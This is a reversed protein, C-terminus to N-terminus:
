EEYRRCSEIVESVAKHTDPSIVNLALHFAVFRELVPVLVELSHEPLCDAIRERISKSETSLFALLLAAYAELIMKEAEKQGELVVQEADSPQLSGEEAAEGAGQNALFISCLLPIVGRQAEKELGEYCPLPVSAAALRSRNHGDKEVMNVLLGLIAVLFDLEQETIHVDTQSGLEINSDSFPSIDGTNNFPSMTLSFSPFHSAILSSLTELGGCAAIQQCGVANDNTLNMLVKVATLLCDGLLKSSEEVVSSCSTQSSHNSEENSSEEPCLMPQSLFGDDLNISTVRSNQKRFVKQKDSLVDWRSPEVEDEDFAFPDLSDELNKSKPDAVSNSKEGVNPKVRSDWNRVQTKGDSTRSTVSCSGLASSSLRTKIFCNNAKTRAMDESSFTSSGFQSGSLRQSTKPVDWGMGSSNRGTTSCERSLRISSDRSRDKHDGVPPLECFHSIGTSPNRSMEHSSTTSSGGCLALGSLINIFGIMLKAFSVPSRQSALSGGMGLLHSQNEKSLFTANEMIKLCRLLLVLCEVHEDGKSNRTPGSAKLWGEMSSHLSMALEFIADLGGLQRLKEKFKDGSQKKVTGIADEMSMTSFSAKEITLLAIWQPSLEPRSFGDEANSAKMEECHKLVEKVKHIIAASSSDLRRTVDETTRADKLFALLKHGIAPAKEETVNCIVPKLLKLLFLISSPSYLLYDDQGESTLLHFLTAAALNSPSDNLSLGLIADIITRAIGQARLLRRQSETGCISLLSLLSARRIRVPQGKKLGDLAFNVEDMHEMMEGFEQTEMLTATTAVARRPAEMSIPVRKSDRKGEWDSERERKGIQKLKQSKRAVNDTEVIPALFQLSNKSLNSLHSDSDFTWRTSDQSSFTFNYIEQPSEQEQSLSFSDGFSDYVDDNSNTDSFSSIGRNRRGYKRVIM